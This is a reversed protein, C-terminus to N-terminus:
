QKGVKELINEGGGASWFLKDEESLSDWGDTEIQDSQVSNASVAALRGNKRVNAPAEESITLELDGQKFHTIGAKRCAAALKKLEKATPLNSM